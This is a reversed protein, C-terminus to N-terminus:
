GRDYTHLQLVIDHFLGRFRFSCGCLLLSRSLVFVSFELGTEAIAADIRAVKPLFFDDVYAFVQWVDRM